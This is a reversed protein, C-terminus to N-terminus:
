IWFYIMVSSIFQWQWADTIFFCYHLNGCLEKNSPGIKLVSVESKKLVLNPNLLCVRM